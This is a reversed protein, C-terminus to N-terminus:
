CSDAFRRTVPSSVGFLMSVGVYNQQRTGAAHFFVFCQAAPFGILLIKHCLMPRFRPLVGVIVRNDGM